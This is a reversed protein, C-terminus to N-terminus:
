DKVTERVVEEITTVGTKIKILGSRRLSIMGQDIAKKKIERSQARALIMERIDEATLVDRASSLLTRYVLRADAVMSFGITRDAHNGMTTYWLRWRDGDLPEAACTFNQM